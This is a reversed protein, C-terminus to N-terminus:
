NEPVILLSNSVERYGSPVNMTFGRVLMSSSDGGDLNVAEDAGLKLLIDALGELSVGMSREPQRGDVTVLLLKDDETIGVATRPARGSVIDEQFSEEESTINVSGEEILQPGAGLIFDIEGPLESEPKINERIELPDGTEAQSLRSAAEGRAQILYGGSPIELPYSLQGRHMGRIRDDVVLVEVGVNRQRPPLDGYHDNILTLEGDRAPRNVGSVDLEIDGTRIKASWEYRAINFNDKQDGALATRSLGPPTTSITEGERYLLGLPRGQYDFYGGNVGVLAGKREGLGALSEPGSEISDGALFLQMDYRSRRQNFEIVNFVRRGEITFQRLEQYDIGLQVSADVARETILLDELGIIEAGHYVSLIERRDTGERAALAASSLPLGMGHGKGRGTLRFRYVEDNQTYEEIEFLLSPLEFNESEKAFIEYIDEDEIVFSGSGTHFVLRSVRGSGERDEVEIEELTSPMVQLDPNLDVLRSLLENEIFTLGFNQTWTNKEAYKDEQWSLGERATRVSPRKEDLLGEPEATVGGSDPHYYGRMLERKRSLYEGATAYVASKCAATIKGREAESGLEALELYGEESYLYDSLFRSRLAVALARLAEEEAGPIYQRALPSIKYKVARDIPMWGLVDIEPGSKILGAGNLRIGDVAMMEGEIELRDAAITKQEGDAAEPSYFKFGSEESSTTTIWGQFGAEQLRDLLQEAEDREQKEGVQLRWLDDDEATEDPGIINLAAFGAREAEKRVTMVRSRSDSAFIQVSHIEGMGTQEFDVRYNGPELYIAEGSEPDLVRSTELLEIERSHDNQDHKIRIQEDQAYFQQLEGSGGINAAAATGPDVPSFGISFIVLMMTFFAAHVGIHATFFSESGPNYKKQFSQRILDLM